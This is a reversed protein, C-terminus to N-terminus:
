ARRRVPVAVENRRLFPPTFPPDYGLFVPEGGAPEWASGRLERLLAEKHEDIRADDTAGSFRLVALTEGPAEVIRVRPDAPEPATARTMSRPLFFRMAVRTGGAGATEVPATMAIKESRMEVPTTMAIKEAGGSRARNKGFIYGALLGFAQDRTGGDLVTEAALRPGYARIECPGARGVVEYPPQEYARVGVVSLASQAVLELISGAAKLM